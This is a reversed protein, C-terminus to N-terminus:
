APGRSLSSEFWWWDSRPLVVPPASPEAPFFLSSLPAALQLLRVGVFRDGAATVGSSRYREVQDAVRAPVTRSRWGGSKLEDVLVLGEPSRWVLDPVGGWVDAAPKVLAWGTPPMMRVAVAVCSVLQSAVVRRSTGPACDRIVDASVDFIDVVQVRDRVPAM